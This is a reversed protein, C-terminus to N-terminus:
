PSHDTIFREKKQTPSALKQDPSHPLQSHIEDYPGLGTQMVGKHLRDRCSPKLNGQKSDTNIPEQCDVGCFRALFYSIFKSKTKGYDKWGWLSIRPKDLVIKNEYYTDHLFSCRCGFGAITYIIPWKRPETFRMVFVLSLGFSKMHFILKTQM